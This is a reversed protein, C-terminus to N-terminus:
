DIRRFFGKISNGFRQSIVESHIARNQLLDNVSNVADGLETFSHPLVESNFMLESIENILGSNVNELNKMESAIQDRASIMLEKSLQHDNIIENIPGELNMNRTKNKIDKLIMETMEEKQSSNEAYMKQLESLKGDVEEFLALSNTNKTIETQINQSRLELQRVKSVNQFNFNGDKFISQGETNNKPNREGSSGHSIPTHASVPFNTSLPGSPANIM